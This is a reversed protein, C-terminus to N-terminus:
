ADRRPEPPPFPSQINAASPAQAVRAARPTPLSSPSPSCSCRAPRTPPPSLFPCATCCPSCASCTNCPSSAPSRPSSPGRAAACASSSPQVAPSCTLTALLRHDFQVAAINEFWDRPFPLAAYGAPLLRGDMLPFTNYTLGAHLGAMFGGAVITCSVLAVVLLSLRRLWAGDTTAAPPHWLSLATWLIAAYLLLALSLHAVLRYASVSTSGAMFGSAVMFWGIAGQLFGLVFILVLRPLLARPIRRTLAFWVLPVFFVIGLLRGWLRHLWELWFIHKFGALTMGANRLRYQPITRYLAFLHDWAAHSLPPVIGSVPRWEMISLGSGTLRTIGGIAVMVLLMFCIGFLWLAVPRTSQRRM